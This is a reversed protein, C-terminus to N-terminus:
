VSKILLGNALSQEIYSKCEYDVNDINVDAQIYTLEPNILNELFDNEFIKEFKMLKNFIVGNYYAKDREDRNLSAFSTIYFPKEYQGLHGPMDHYTNLGNGCPTNKINVSPNLNSLLNQAIQSSGSILGVGGAQIQFVGGIINAIQKINKQIEQTTTLNGDNTTISAQLQDTLDLETEKHKLICSFNDNSVVTKIVISQGTTAKTLISKKNLTGIFNLFETGINNKDIYIETEKIETKIIAGNFTTDNTGKIYFQITNESGSIYKIYKKEIVWCDVINCVIDTTYGPRRCKYLKSLNLVATEVSLDNDTIEYGFLDTSTSVNNVFLTSENEKMVVKFLVMLDTIPQNEQTDLNVYTAVQTPDTQLVNDYYGKGINRNCRIVNCYDFINNQLLGNAWLDKNLNFIVGNVRMVKDNVYYFQYTVNNDSDTNKVAIYNVKLLTNFPLVNIGVFLQQTTYQINDVNDIEVIKALSNIYNEVNTFYYFTNKNINPMEGFMLIKANNIM